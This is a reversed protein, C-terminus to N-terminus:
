TAAMARSPPKNTQRKIKGLKALFENDSLEIGESVSRPPIELLIHFHNSMVCYALVKVGCFEEYMRMMNVFAEKEEDGLLFERGVIRSVIRSTCHMILAAEGSFGALFM